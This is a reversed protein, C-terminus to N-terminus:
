VFNKSIEKPIGRVFAHYEGDEIYEYAGASKFRIKEFRHDTRWQGMADGEDEDHYELGLPHTYFIGDTNYGIVSFGKRIMRETKELIYDVNGNIADRALEPYRRGPLKLSQMAGICFNLYCKYEPHAHRGEYLENFYDYFEPHAKCLAAPYASHIDLHKVDHIERGQLLEGISTLCILPKKIEKKVEAIQANDTMAYNRALYGCKDRFRQLAHGGTIGKEEQEDKGPWFTFQYLLGGKILIISFTNHSVKNKNDWCWGDTMLTDSKIAGNETLEYERPHSQCYAIIENFENVDKVINSKRKSPRYSYPVGQYKKLDLMNTEELSTNPDGVSADGGSSFDYYERYKYRIIAM